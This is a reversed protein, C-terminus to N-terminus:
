GDVANQVVLARRRRGLGLGLALGLGLWDPLGRGASSSCACGGDGDANGSGDTAATDGDGTPEGSGDGSASVGGASASGGTGDATGGPGDGEGATGDPDVGDDTEGPPPADTWEFAGIDYGAGVPRAVGDRDLAVEAIAVGADVPAGDMVLHYDHGAADVFASADV